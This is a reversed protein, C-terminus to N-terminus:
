GGGTAEDIMKRAVSEADIEYKGSQVQERLEAVRAERAPSGEQLDSIHKAFSSLEVADSGGADTAIDKTTKSANTTGQTQEAGSTGVTIRQLNPDNVQM